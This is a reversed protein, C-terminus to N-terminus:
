GAPDTAPAPRLQRPGSVGHGATQCALMKDREFGWIGQGGTSNFQPATMTYTNQTPWIGFKPYDNFKVPHVLFEYACWTGTPDNTTSVAICQYFPGSGSSVFAFQNAMWRGAFQDYLVIPDGRNLTGCNPLGPFLTNGPHPGVLLSGTKSYIAYHLNVWQMYHNPGVDGETDPPYCGCLNNIGEFNQIPPPMQGKPASRQVVPDTTSSGPLRELYARSTPSRLKGSATRRRSSLRPAAPVRVPTAYGHMKAPSSTAKSSVLTGAAVSDASGHTAAVQQTSSGNASGFVVATVVIASGLALLLKIPTRRM